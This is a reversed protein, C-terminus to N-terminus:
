YEKACRITCNGTMDDGNRYQKLTIKLEYTGPNTINYDSWNKKAKSSKNKGDTECKYSDIAVGNFLINGVNNDISGTFSCSAVFPASLNAESVTIQETITREVSVTTSPIEFDATNLSVSQLDFIKATAYPSATIIDYLYFNDDRIIESYADINMDNLTQVRCLHTYPYDTKNLGKFWGYMALGAGVGRVMDENNKGFSADLTDSDQSAVFTLYNITGYFPNTIRGLEDLMDNYRDISMDYRELSVSLSDKFMKELKNFSYVEDDSDTISYDLPRAKPKVPIEVTEITKRTDGEYVIVDAKILLAEQLLSNPILVKVAGDGELTALKPIARAMNSNSFHIEPADGLNLGRIVLVRNIDWQYLSDTVYKGYTSFNAKIM